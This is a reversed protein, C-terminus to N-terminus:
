ERAKRGPWRALEAISPCSELLIVRYNEAEALLAAQLDPRDRFLLLAAAAALRLDDGSVSYDGYNNREAVISDQIAHLSM